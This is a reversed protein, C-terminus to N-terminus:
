FKKRPSLRWCRQYNQETGGFGRYFRAVGPLMSGECDVILDCNDGIVKDMIGFMASLRKGEDDSVPALLIVRERTRVAFMAAVLKEDAFAGVLLAMGRELCADVLASLMLFADDGMHSNESHWLLKFQEADIDRYVLQAAKRVNRRTNEDRQAGSTIIYNTHTLATKISENKYNLNLDYSLFPIAKLFRFADTATMSFVGLQQTWKPQVLYRLCYKRKVTLPMVAQYDDEVLAEWGPSVIDLWWSLGYPQGVSALVLSDWRERDIESNRLHRIM